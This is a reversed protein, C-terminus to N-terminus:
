KFTIVQGFLKGDPLDWKAPREMPLIREATRSGPAVSPLNDVEFYIGPIFRGSGGERLHIFYDCLILSM